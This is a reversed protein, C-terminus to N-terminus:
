IGVQFESVWDPSVQLKTGLLKISADELGDVGTMEGGSEQGRLAM